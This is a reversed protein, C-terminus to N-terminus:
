RGPRVGFRVRFRMRRARLQDTMAIEGSSPRCTYARAAAPLLRIAQGPRDISTSAGRVVGPHTIELPVIQLQSWDSM